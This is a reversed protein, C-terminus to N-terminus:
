ANPPQTEDLRQQLQRAGRQNLLWIGSFVIVALAGTLLILPHSARPGFWLGILLLAMGPVFPAIYWAAIARVADRQRVLQARYFDTVAAGGDPVRQASARRHLQWAVFVTAIIILCAGAQTIWNQPAIVERLFGVIVIACAIYETANRRRIRGQFARSKEHIQALTM